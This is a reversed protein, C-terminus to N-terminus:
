FLDKVMLQVLVLGSFGPMASTGGQPRWGDVSLLRMEEEMGTAKGNKNSQEHVVVKFDLQQNEMRKKVKKIAM